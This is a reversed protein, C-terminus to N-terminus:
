SAGGKLDHCVGSAQARAMLQDLNKIKGPRFLTLTGSYLAFENQAISIAEDAVCGCFDGTKGLKETTKQKAAEVAREYAVVAQRKQAEYVALADNVDVGSQKGAFKMINGLPSHMMNRMAEAAAEKQPDPLPLPIKSVEEQIAASVSQRYGKECREIHGNARLIRAALEPGVYVWNMVLWIGLGFVLWKPALGVIQDM